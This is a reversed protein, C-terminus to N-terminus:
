RQKRRSSPAVRMSERYKAVTRRAIDIGELRLMDSIAQDSLPRTPNEAKIIDRIKARVSESALMEGSHTQIGPNFFYKLEFLGHPCNLYKQTTVRSVTSEHVGIDEAVDRLVMPKLYRVGKDFFGKQKDLISKVVKYITRQRQDISKILWSASRIKDLLFERDEKPLKDGRQLLERYYSNIRLKPMGDDNLMITWEDGMKFVYADPTVYVAEEGGFPRGPKPELQQIISYAEQVEARTLGCDRAVQDVDGRSLANLHEEILTRYIDSDFGLQTLQILLCERLDRAAVGAPDFSQIRLLVDEGMSVARDGLPKLIEELNGRLYGDEDLNGIIAIGVATEDQNFKSMRLQWTLHDALTDPRSVLGEFSPKEMEERVYYPLNQNSELYSEWDSINEPISLIHVEEERDSAPKVPEEASAEPQDISIPESGDAPSTDDLVPNELIEERIMEALELRSLQLLKIAQQLQPTMVLQQTQKM